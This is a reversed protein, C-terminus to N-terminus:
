LGEHFRFGFVTSVAHMNTSQESAVEAFLFLMEGGLAERHGVGVSSGKNSVLANATGMVTGYVNVAEGAGVQLKLGAGTKLLGAGGKGDTGKGGTVDAAAIASVSAWMRHWLAKEADIHLGAMDYEKGKVVLPENFSFGWGIETLPITFIKFDAKGRVRCSPDFMDLEGYRNRYCYDPREQRVPRDPAVPPEVPRAGQSIGEIAM